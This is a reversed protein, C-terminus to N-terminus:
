RCLENLLEDSTYTEGRHEQQLAEDIGQKEFNYIKHDILELKKGKLTLTELFNLIENAVGDSTNIHLTRTM